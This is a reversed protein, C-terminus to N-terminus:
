ERLLWARVCHLTGYDYCAHLATFVPKLSLDAEPAYQEITNCILQMQDQPLDLVAQVHVIGAAIAQALHMKVTNVTLQRQDAITTIDQGAQFRQVTECVTDSFSHCAQHNAQHTSRTAQTQQQAYEKLVALFVASYRELKVAGVGYLRAFENRSRPHRQIMDRLTADSFIMYPPVGQEIALQRRVARLRQWLAQAAPQEPALTAPRRTLKDRAQERDHRLALTQEGRLIPRSRETLRLGGYSEMDVHVLGMIILQRYVSRWQQASLETGIAFTSVQDHGFQRIKASTNGLLVNILHNVGFRQGTRYICSLAKQAVVTGDWTAVPSLCNDCNGCPQALTEGFYQLLAQRRCGTTECLGLLADLKHWEINKFWPDADSKEIMRRRILVDDLDYSMWANAPLGDRGARGTEQYYSEISKPLGFHAVFRVDPKDIGMGFAITAVMIVGEERVFAMQHATRIQTSLGAHYPYAVCGHTTLFQAIQEVKRRSLCYVIGSDQGHHHHIFNLLQHPPQQKHVIQYRINPRDFSSCFFTAQELSLREIIEKQTTSDATATLAMRPVSPWRQHLINLNIYEPRFDHGWQSVCHAEDIAFLAIKIHDLLILLRETLLREPAIYLLDLAGTQLAREVAHQESVSLSSNLAAAKVGLQQLVDVQNQMLAILPSIVIATGSRMLAPIQYCLSKGSGTPMLVLADGGQNVHDIIRAQGDRFSPYGFVRNLIDLATSSM